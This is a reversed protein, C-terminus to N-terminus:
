SCSGAPSTRKTPAYRPRSFSRTGLAPYGKRVTWMELKWRETFGRSILCLRIEAPM